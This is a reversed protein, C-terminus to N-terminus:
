PAIVDPLVEVQGLAVFSTDGAATFEVASGDLFDLGSLQISQEHMMRVGQGFGLPDAPKDDKPFLRSAKFSIRIGKGSIAANGETEVPNGDVSLAQITYKTTDTMFSTLQVPQPVDAVFSVRWNRYKKIPGNAGPLMDQQTVQVTPLLVDIRAGSYSTANKGGGCAMLLTPIILLLGKM